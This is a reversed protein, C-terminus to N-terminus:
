DVRAIFGLVIDAFAEPAFAHGLRAQGDLTVVQSHPIAAHLAAISEAYYDPSEGGRILQTPATIRAVGPPVHGM